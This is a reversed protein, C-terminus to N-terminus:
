GFEYGPEFGDVIRMEELEFERLVESSEVTLVKGREELERARQEKSKTEDTAKLGSEELAKEAKAQARKRKEVELARKRASNVVVPEVYGEEGVPKVRVAEIEEDNYELLYPNARLYRKDAEATYKYNPHEELRYKKVKFPRLARIFVLCETNSMQEVQIRSMLERGVEQKNVSVSGSKGRSSGFSLTKVSEKGLREVIIKLTDSHFTM